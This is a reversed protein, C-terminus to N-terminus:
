GGSLAQMFHIQDGDRLPEELRSKDALLEGNIFVNVHRRVRPGEEIIYSSFHPRVADMKKLVELLTKADIESTRTPYYSQLNATLTVKLM